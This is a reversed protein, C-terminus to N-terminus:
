PSGEQIALEIFSAHKGGHHITNNAIRWQRSLPDGTNRNIDFNPFSSSSIDVRIRHGAKFLNAAPQVPLRIEYVKAPEMLEPTKFSNRYRARIIGDTVPFAYGAPYDESAPYVDILKVFFDTDPADSSVYLVARLNGAVTTDRSLPPTQFVLVDPRSATPLGPIGHGPLTEMQIQNYPGMGRFGLESAPGYAIECRGDSHVTNRPDYTYTTSDAGGGPKTASLTGDGHFYYKRASTDVAPWQEGTHWAGGHNMRDKEGRGGDGGGMVFVKVPHGLEASEDGKLWRDFWQLEYDLFELDNPPMLGAKAGYNADGNYPDWNAHTWPGAVLYQDRRGRKLMERYGDVISRAYVEYWGTVWMIPIDPYNDFYEDMALGPRQWFETYDNNDFYFQFAADEYRPAVSLPTQGRRWPIRSAWQLFGKSTLMPKIAEVISPNEQAEWSTTAMHLHWRLLGLTRTGGVHMSYYYANNPGTHPIMTALSPPNLTAMQIQVWGMYSVGYTGVKGSSSPHRALWEVTDYGDEAEDRMPFFEGGSRFRGRCDQIVSLYGHSAFFSAPDKYFQNEKDYPTRQLVVPYKGELPRGDKAPLYLDTALEVGDRMPVMVDKMVVVDMTKEEGAPGAAAFGFCFLGVAFLLTWPSSRM